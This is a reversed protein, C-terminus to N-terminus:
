DTWPDFVEIGLDQFDRRNRTALVLAHARATAAILADVIPLSRAASIVGWTEAVDGDVALAREAYHQRVVHLWGRYTEARPRDRAELSAIGRAIEGLSLVSIYRADIPVSALWAAVKPEPRPKRTESLVNTDLLFRM